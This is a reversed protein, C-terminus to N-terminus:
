LSGKEIKFCFSFILLFKGQFHLRDSSSFIDKIEKFSIAYVLAIPPPHM